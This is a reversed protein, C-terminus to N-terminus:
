KVLKILINVQMIKVLEKLFLINGQCGGQIYPNGEFWAIM